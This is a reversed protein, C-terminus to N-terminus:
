SKRFCLIMALSRVFGLASSAEKQKRPLQIGLFKLM